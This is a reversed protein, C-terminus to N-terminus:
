GKRELTEKMAEQWAPTDAHDAVSALFGDAVVTRAMDEDLGRSRLYFLQEDPIGGVTSGHSCVVDGERIDLEPATDAAAQSSLLLADAREYGQADAMGEAIAIRGAILAKSEGDLVAKARLESRTRPAEHSVMTKTFFEQRGQLRAASLVIASADDGALVIATEEYSLSAGKVSTFLRVSARKEARIDKRSHWAINASLEQIELSTVSSGQEAVIDLAESVFGTTDSKTGASKLTRILMVSSGEEAVLLFRQFGSGAYDSELYVKGGDVDKPVHILLGDSKAAQRLADWRHLAKAEPHRAILRREDPTAQSFPKVTVGQEASASHRATKHDPGNEVSLPVRSLDLSLSRGVRSPPLPLQGQGDDNNM